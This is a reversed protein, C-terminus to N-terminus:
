IAVSSGVMQFQKDGFVEPKMWRRLIDVKVLRTHVKVPASNLYNITSNYEEASDSSVYWLLRKELPFQLNSVTKVENITSNFVFTIDDDKDATLDNHDYFQKSTAQITKINAIMALNAMKKKVAKISDQIAELMADISTAHKYQEAAWFAETYQDMLHMISAVEVSYLQCEIPGRTKICQYRQEESSRVEDSLTREAIDLLGKPALKYQLDGQSRLYMKVQELVLLKSKLTAHYYSIQDATENVSCQSVIYKYM